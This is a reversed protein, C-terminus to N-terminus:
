KSITDSVARLTEVLHGLKANQPLDLQYGLSSSTQSKTKLLASLRHGHEASVFCIDDMEVNDMSGTNILVNGMAGITGHSSIDSLYHLKVFEHADQTSFCGLLDHNTAAFVKVLEAGDSRWGNKYRRLETKDHLMAAKVKNVRGDAYVLVLYRDPVPTNIPISYKLSSIKLQNRSWSWDGNNFLNIYYSGRGVRQMGVKALKAPEVKPVVPETSTIAEGADDDDPLGDGDNDQAPTPEYKMSEPRAYGSKDLVLKVIAEGRLLMTRNGMRKYGMFGDYWIIFNSPECKLECITHGEHETFSITVYHEAVHGLHRTISSRLKNEYGDKNEHYTYKDDKESSNLYIYEHEIGIPEGNDNVGIYLTGGQANMFGAITQLIVKMQTDMDMETAGAPYLITSKFERVSDEEGFEGAPNEPVLPLEIVDVTPEVAPPTELKLRTNNNEKVVIGTVNLELEDGPQLSEQQNDPKLMHTMGFADRVVLFLKDNLTKLEEVQFSHVKSIGKKADPYLYGLIQERDQQLSLGSGEWVAKVYCRIMQIPVKPSSWDWDTQFEYARVTFTAGQRDKLKIRREGLGTVLFDYFEGVKYNM